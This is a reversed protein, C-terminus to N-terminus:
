EGGGEESEAIKKVVKAFDREVPSRVLGTLYESLDVGRDDAVARAKRVLGADIKAPSTKPGAKKKAGM